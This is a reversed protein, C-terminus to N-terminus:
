KLNEKKQLECSFDIKLLSVIHNMSWAKVLKFFFIIDIFNLVTKGKLLNVSIHIM